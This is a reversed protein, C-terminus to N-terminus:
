AVTFNVVSVVKNKDKDSTGTRGALLKGESIVYLNWKSPGEGCNKKHRVTVKYDGSMANDTKLYRVQEKGVEFTGCGGAHDNNLRGGTKKSVPKKFSIVNGDPETVFVDFDDSSVWTMEIVLFPAVTRFSVCDNKGTKSVTKTKGKSNVTQYSKIPLVVCLDDAFDDQNGVNGRRAIGRRGPLDPFFIGDAFFYDKRFKNSLGDPNYKSIPVLKSKGKIPQVRAEGTSIQAGLEVDTRCIYPPIAISPDRLLIRRGIPALSNDADVKCLRFNCKKGCVRGQREATPLFVAVSAAVNCVAVISFTALVVLTAFRM